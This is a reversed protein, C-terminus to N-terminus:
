VRHTFLLPYSQQITHHTNLKQLFGLSRDQPLSHSNRRAAGEEPVSRPTRLMHVVTSTQGKKHTQLPTEACNRIRMEGSVSPPSCRGMLKNGMQTDTPLHKNLDKGM